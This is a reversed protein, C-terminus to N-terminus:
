RVTAPEVLERALSAYAGGPYEKLYRQAAAHARQPDIRRLLELSRGRAQERLVGRPSENLYAAFWRLAEESAGFHDAELKGLLFATEGRAGFRRRLALLADRARRPQGGFRATDVLLRLEAASSREVVSDFGQAEVEALAARYQRARALRQWAPAAADSESAAAPTPKEDSTPAPTPAASATKDPGPSAPGRSLTMQGTEVYVELREGAVLSRGRPLHPGSVQVSGDSLDLEFRRANPAWSVEFRTGTVRVLFPGARVTWQRPPRHAVHLRASGRALLLGVHRSDNDLVHLGSAPMVDVQTGESFRVEVPARSAEVFKGEAARERVGNVTFFLAATRDSRPARVLLVGVVATLVLAAAPVLVWLGSRLSRKEASSASQLRRRVRSLTDLPSASADSVRAVEEGLRELRSTVADM